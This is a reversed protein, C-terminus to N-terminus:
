HFLYDEEHDELFYQDLCFDIETSSIPQHVIKANPCKECEKPNEVYNYIMNCSACAGNSLRVPDNQPCKPLITTFSKGDSSIIKRKPCCKKTPVVVPSLDDCMAPTCDEESKVYLTSTVALASLCYFFIGFIFLIKKM